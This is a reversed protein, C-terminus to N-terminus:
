LDSVDLTWNNTRGEKPPHIDVVIGHRLYAPESERNSSQSLPVRRGQASPMGSGSGGGGLVQDIDSNLPSYEM